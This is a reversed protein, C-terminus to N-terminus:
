LECTESGSCKRPQGLSVCSAPLEQFNSAILGEGLRSHLIDWQGFLNLTNGQIEGLNKM